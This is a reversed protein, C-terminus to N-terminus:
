SICDFNQYKGAFIMNRNCEEGPGKKCFLEVTLRFSSVQEYATKVIRAAQPIGHQFDCGSSGKTCADGNQDMLGFFEDKKECKKTNFCDTGCMVNKLGQGPDPNDCLFGVQNSQVWVSGLNTNASGDCAETSKYTTTVQSSTFGPVSPVSFTKLALSDFGPIVTNALNVTDLDVCVKEHLSLKDDHDIDLVSFALADLAVPNNTQDVFSFELETGVTNDTATNLIGLNVNFSLETEVHNHQEPRFSFYTDDLAKVVLDFETGDATTGIKSFRMEQPQSTDPGLGGLNSYLM